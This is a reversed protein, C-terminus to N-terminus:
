RFRRAEKSFVSIPKWDTKLVERSAKEIRSSCVKSHCFAFEEISVGLKLLAAIVMLKILLKSM